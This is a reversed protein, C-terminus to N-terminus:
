GNYGKIWGFLSGMSVDTGSSFCISSGVSCEDIVMPDDNFDLKINFVNGTNGKIM